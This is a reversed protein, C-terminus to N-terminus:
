TLQSDTVPVEVVKDIAQLVVWHDILQADAPELLAFEQQFVHDRCELAFHNGIQIGSLPRHDGRPPVSNAFSLTFELFTEATVHFTRKERYRDTPLQETVPQKRGLAAM